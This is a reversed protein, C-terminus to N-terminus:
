QGRTRRDEQRGTKRDEKIGTRRNEQGGGTRRYLYVKDTIFKCSM